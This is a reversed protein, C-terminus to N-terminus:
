HKCQQCRLWRWMLLEPLPLPLLLECAYQKKLAQQTIDTTITLTLRMPWSTCDAQDTSLLFIQV